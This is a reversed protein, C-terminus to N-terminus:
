LGIQLVHRIWFCSRNTKWVCTWHLELGTQLVNKIWFCSVAKSFCNTLYKPILLLFFSSSIIGFSQIESGNKLLLWIWLCFFRGGFLLFFQIESGTTWCVDLGCVCFVVVLFVFFQNESINKWSRSKSVHHRWWVSYCPRRISM